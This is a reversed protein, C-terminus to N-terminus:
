LSLLQKKLSIDDPFCWQEAIKGDKIRYISVEYIEIKTGTADIGEYTASHTGTAKYRTVVKDNEVIVDVIEENWDPFIQKWDNIENTVGAIGNWTGDSLYHGMFDTSLVENLKETEGSNWIDHYQVVLNRHDEKSNDEEQYQCSIFLSTTALLVLLISNTKKM